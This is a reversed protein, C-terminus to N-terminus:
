GGLAIYMRASHKEGVPIVLGKDLSVWNGGGFTYFIESDKFKSTCNRFTFTMLSGEPPTTPKPGVIVLNSDYDNANFGITIVDGGTLTLRLALRENGLVDADVQAHERVVIRAPSALILFPADLRRRPTPTVVPLLRRRDVSLGQVAAGVEYAPRGQFRGSGM